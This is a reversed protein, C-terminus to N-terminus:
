VRECFKLAAPCTVDLFERRIGEAFWIFRYESEHAFRSHKMFYADIAQQGVYSQQEAFWRETNETAGPPKILRTDRKRIMTNDRYSCLGAVGGVFGPIQRSVADAFGLCDLIRFASRDNDPSVAFATEITSACLIYAEQANAGLISLRGNPADIEM